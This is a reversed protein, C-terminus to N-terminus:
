RRVDPYSAYCVPTPPPITPVLLAAPRYLRRFWGGRLLPPHLVCSFAGARDFGACQAFWISQARYRITLHM